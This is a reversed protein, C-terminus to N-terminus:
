SVIESQEVKLLLIGYNMKCLYEMAKQADKENSFTIVAFGKLIDNTTDKALYIRSVPGFQKLLDRLDKEQTNESLNTIQITTKDLNFFFNRSLKL